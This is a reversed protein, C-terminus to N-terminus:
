ETKDGPDPPSAVLVPSSRQSRAAGTTRPSPGQLRRIGSDWIRSTTVHTSDYLLNRMHVHSATRHSAICSPTCSLALYQSVTSQRIARSSTTLFPTGPLRDWAAPHRQFPCVEPASAHPPKLASVDARLDRGGRWSMLRWM